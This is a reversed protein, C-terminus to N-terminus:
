EDEVDFFAGHDAQWDETERQLADVDKTLARADRNPLESFDGVAAKRALEKVRDFEIQKELRHTRFELDLGFARKAAYVLVGLSSVGTAIAPLYAVLELPSGLHISRVSALDSPSVVRPEPSEERGMGPYPKALALWRTLSVFLRSVSSLSPAETGDAYQFRLEVALIEPQVEVDMAVGVTV